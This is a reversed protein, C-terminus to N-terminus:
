KKIIIRDLRMRKFIIWIRDVALCVGEVKVKRRFEFIMNVFVWEVDRRSYSISM